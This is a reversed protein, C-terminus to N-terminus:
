VRLRLRAGRLRRAYVYHHMTRSARRVLRWHSCLQQLGRYHHEWLRWHLPKRFRRRWVYQENDNWERIDYRLQLLIASVSDAYGFLRRDRDDRAKEM